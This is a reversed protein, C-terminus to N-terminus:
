RVKGRKAIIYSLDGFMFMIVGYGVEQNKLIDSNYVVSKVM